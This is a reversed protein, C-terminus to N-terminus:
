HQWRRLVARIPEPLDLEEWNDPLKAGAALLADV